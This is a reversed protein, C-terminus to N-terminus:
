INCTVDKLKANDINIRPRYKQVPLISMFGFLHNQENTDEMLNFKKIISERAAFPINDLCKKKCKCDAAPM